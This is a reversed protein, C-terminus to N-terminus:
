QHAAKTKPKPACMHMATLKWGLDAAKTRANKDATAAHLIEEGCTTCALTYTNTTITVHMQFDQEITM